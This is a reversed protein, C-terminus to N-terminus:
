SRLWLEACGVFLDERVPQDSWSTDFVLASGSLIDFVANMMLLGSPPRFENGPGLPGLWFSMIDAIQWQSFPKQAHEQRLKEKNGEDSPGHNPAILLPKCLPNVLLWNYWSSSPWLPESMVVCDDGLLWTFMIYKGLGRAVDESGTRLCLGFQVIAPGGSTNCHFTPFPMTMCTGSWWRIHTHPQGACCSHGLDAVGQLHQLMNYSIVWSIINIIYWIQSRVWTSEM